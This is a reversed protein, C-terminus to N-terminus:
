PTNGLHSTQRLLDDRGQSQISSSYSKSPSQPGCKFVQQFVWKFPQVQEIENLTIAIRKINQIRHESINTKIAMLMITACTTYDKHPFVPFAISKLERDDSLKLSKQIAEFIKQKEEELISNQQKEVVVALILNKQNKQGHVFICQGFEPIFSPKLKKPITSYEQDTPTVIVEVDEQLINGATLDVECGQFTNSQILQPFNSSQGGQSFCGNNGM